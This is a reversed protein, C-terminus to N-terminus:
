CQSWINHHDNLNNLFLLINYFDLTAAAAEQVTIIQMNSTASTNCISTFLLLLWYSRELVEFPVRVFRFADNSGSLTRIPGYIIVIPLSSLLISFFLRCFLTVSGHCKM